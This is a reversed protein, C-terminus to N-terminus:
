EHITLKLEVSDILDSASINSTKCDDDEGDLFIYVRVYNNGSNNVTGLELNVAGNGPLATYSVSGKTANAYGKTAVDSNDAKVADITQTLSPETTIGDKSYAGLIQKKTGDYYEIIFRASSQLGTIQAQEETTKGNVSTWTVNLNDLRINSTANPDSNGVLKCFIKEAYTNKNYGATLTSIAAKDNAASASDLNATTTFAESISGNKEADNTGTPNAIAFNYSVPTMMLSTDSTGPVSANGNHNLYDISLFANNAPLKDARSETLIKLGNAADARMVLGSATATPNQTFWAFTASGVAVTSVLLMSLSSLLAKKRFSKQTKKM